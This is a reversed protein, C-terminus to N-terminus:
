TKLLKKMKKIQSYNPHTTNLDATEAIFGKKWACSFVDKLIDKLIFFHIKYEWLMIM